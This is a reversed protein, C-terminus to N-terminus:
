KAAEHLQVVVGELFTALREAATNALERLRWLDKISAPRNWLAGVAAGLRLSGTGGLISLVEPPLDASLDDSIARVGFFRTKTERCVDAVAYSEMDVALAGTEIHLKQKDVVKHVINEATVLAGVHLRSAPDSEMRFDVTLKDGTTTYIVDPVVIDGVQMEPRLAGAFGASLVWKPTHADLLAHTAKRATAQGMGCQVAAIRISGYRGGRFTFDGGTYKRVRECRDFFPALEIPTAYVIGIDAHALDDTHPPTNMISLNKAPHVPGM